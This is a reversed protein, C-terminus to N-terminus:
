TNYFVRQKDGHQASDIGTLVTWINQVILLRQFQFILKRGVQKSLAALALIGQQGGGDSGVIHISGNLGKQFVTRVAYDDLEAAPQLCSIIATVVPMCMPISHIQRMHHLISPLQQRLRLPFGVEGPVGKCLVPDSLNAGIHWIRRNQDGGPPQEMIKLLGLNYAQQLCQLLISLYRKNKISYVFTAHSHHSFFVHLLQAM